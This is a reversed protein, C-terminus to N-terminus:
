GAWKWQVFAPLSFGLSLSPGAWTVASPQLRGAEGSWQSVVPVGLQGPHPGPRPPIHPSPQQRVPSFPIEPCFLQRPLLQKLFNWLQSPHQPSLLGDKGRRLFVTLKPLRGSLLLPQLLKPTATDPSTGVRSKSIVRSPCTEHQHMVGQRTLLVKRGWM